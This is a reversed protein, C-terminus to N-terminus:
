SLVAQAEGAVQGRKGSQSDLLGVTRFSRPPEGVPTLNVVVAVVVVCGAFIRWPNPSWGHRKARLMGALGLGEALVAGVTMPASAWAPLSPLVSLPLPVLLTNANPATAAVLVLLILGLGSVSLAVGPRGAVGLVVEGAARTHEGVGALHRVHVRGRGRGGIRVEGALYPLDLEATHSHEEVQNLSTV